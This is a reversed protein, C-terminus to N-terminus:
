VYNAWVTSNIAHPNEPVSIPSVLGPSHPLSGHHSHSNKTAHHQQQNRAQRGPTLRHVHQQAQRRIHRLANRRAFILQLPEAMRRRDFIRFHHAHDAAPQVPLNSNGVNFPSVLLLLKGSHVPMHDAILFRRAAKGVFDPLRRRRGPDAPVHAVGRDALDDLETQPLEPCGRGRCQAHDDVYRRIAGVIDPAPNVLHAIKGDALPHHDVRKGNLIRMIRGWVAGM